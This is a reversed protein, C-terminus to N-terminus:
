NASKSVPLSDAIMFQEFVERPLLPEMDENPRGFKVQPIVRWSSDIKVRIIAPGEHSWFRELENLVADAVATDFYHFGTAMAIGEFNPFSLGYEPSSSEYRSEFWQDQTQRIMSYGSNDILVVRANKQISSLSVLDHLSMMLSGDGIVCVSMRDPSAISAGITAPLSWGMATNNLDHIIRQGNLPVFETLLWPLACGTDVYVDLQKPASEKFQKFFGYPNLGTGSREAHDFSLMTKETAKCYDLWEDEIRPLNLDKATSLFGKADSQIKLDIHLGFAAFKQMESSDIDVMVKKANRAFTTVPSGTAKTDLRCGVSLVLDANQVILNAHRSGHTGFLGFRQQHGSPLLHPVAWTLVVPVGWSEAFEVFEREAMSRLVGAGALLVPRRSNRVEQELKRFSSSLDIKPELPPNFGALDSWVVYQRQIDDPIDILVPGPRGELALWYSEELVSRIQEKSRVEFAGKTVPRVMDVVPTEQFGIQRVGTKGVMRSTSVQGTLFILPISDYFCGAVGTILNTAGPGSTAIAVGARGSSRTYGDAAMAISQEHHLPFYQCKPNSAFADILHLSAGGAVVFATESGKAALFSAVAEAVKLKQNNM